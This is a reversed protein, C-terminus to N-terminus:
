KNFSLVPRRMRSITEDLELGRLTIKASQRLQQDDILVLDMARFRGGLVLSRHPRDGFCLLDRQILSRCRNTVQPGAQSVLSRPM